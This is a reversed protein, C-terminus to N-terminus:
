GVHYKGGAIRLLEANLQWYLKILDDDEGFGKALSRENFEVGLKMAEDIIEKAKDKTLM